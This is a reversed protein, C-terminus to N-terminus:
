SLHHFFSCCLSSITHRHHHVKRRHKGHGGPPWPIKGKGSKLIDRSHTIAIGVTSMSSLSRQPYSSAGQRQFDVPIYFIPYKVGNFTIDCFYLYLEQTELINKNRTIEFIENFLDTVQYSEFFSMLTTKIEDIDFVMKFEDITEPMEGAILQKTINSVKSEIGRVLISTLEEEMLYISNEDGIGASELSKSISGIFPSVLVAQITKATEDLATTLAKDFEDKYSLSYNEVINAIKKALEDTKEAGVNKM